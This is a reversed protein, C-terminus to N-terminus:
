CALRSYKDQLKNINLQKIPQKISICYATHYQHNELFAIQIRLWEKEDINSKFHALEKFLGKSIDEYKDTGLYELDADAIIRELKSKPRQPIKTAMIMGCIEDIQTNSLSYAPLMERALACSQDEHNDYTRIFGIDHFWCAIQLLGLEVKSIVEAEGIIEAKETVYKTHQANHYTLYSPLGQHLIDFVDRKIKNLCILDM